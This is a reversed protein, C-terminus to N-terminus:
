CNNFIHFIHIFKNVKIKANMYQVTKCLFTIKQYPFWYDTDRETAPEKVTLCYLPNETDLDGYVSVNLKELYHRLSEHYFIKTVSSSASPKPFLM